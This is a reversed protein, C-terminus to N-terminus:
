PNVNINGRLLDTTWTKPNYTFVQVHGDVMLVPSETNNLHRFRINGAGYPPGTGVNNYQVDLNPPHTIWPGNSGAALNVPQGANLSTTTAGNPGIVAAGTNGSFGYQDTLHTTAVGSPPNFEGGDLDNAVPITSPVNWGGNADPLLAAEFILGIEASRKIQALKYPQTFKGSVPDPNNNWQTMWPMLRPHCVYQTYTNSNTVAIAGPADPCLFVKRVASQLGGTTANEIFNGGAKSMYQQILISWTTEHFGVQDPATYTIPVTPHMPDWVGDWFGFPLTGQNDGAYMIVAQGMQRLNSQCQVLSAQQRARNLAPLLVSILLAIIGIVVLLEVLTFGKSTFRKSLRQSTNRSGCPTDISM